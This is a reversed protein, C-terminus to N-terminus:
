GLCEMESILTVILWLTRECRGWLRDSSLWLIVIGLQLARTIESCGLLRVWSNWLWLRSYWWHYESLLYDRRDALRHLLTVTRRRHAQRGVSRLGRWCSVDINTSNDAFCCSYQFSEARTLGGSCALWQLWPGLMFHIFNLLVDLNPAFYPIVFIIVLHSPIQSLCLSIFLFINGGMQTKVVALIIQIVMRGNDTLLSM